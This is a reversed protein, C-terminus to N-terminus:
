LDASATYHFCYLSGVTINKNSYISFGYETVYGGTVDSVESEDTINKITNPQKSAPSYIELTPVVRMPAPWNLGTTRYQNAGIVSIYGRELMNEPAGIWSQRYYRQCELLEVSYGKPVYPPLTETTYEGEYLAAWLYEGAKLYVAFSVNSSGEWHIKLNDDSRDEDSIGVISVITGDAKMAAFTYPTNLKAKSLEIYQCLECDSNVTISADNLTIISANNSWSAWRDMTYTKKVSSSGYSTQGRQNVPNTFDSNDLLNRPQLYYEPVKGGLKEADAATGGEPLAGVNSATLTINSGIAEIGNVTIPSASGTDGKPGKPLGITLVGNEYSATADAGSPLTNAVVELNVFESAADAAANARDAAQEAASIQALLEELSPVVNDPDVLSDTSTQGVSGEYWLVTHRVDGVQVKMAFSFRGPVAYCSDNLVVYASGNEDGGTLIVTAGDARIFYGTVNAGTLDVEAGGSKVTVDFRHAQDDQGGLIDRLAHRTIPEELSVTNKIITQIAM